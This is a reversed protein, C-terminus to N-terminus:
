GNMESNYLCLYNIHQQRLCGIPILLLLPMVVSNYYYLHRIRLLANINFFFGKMRKEKEKMFVILAFYFLGFKDMLLLM